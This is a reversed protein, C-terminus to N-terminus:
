AVGSTEQEIWNKISHKVKNTVGFSSQINHNYGLVTVRRDLDVGGINTVEGAYAIGKVDIGSKRPLNWEEYEKASFSFDSCDGFLDVVTRGNLILLEIRSSQILLGLIDSVCSLLGSKESNSLSSWKVSTAYPILDLHCAVFLSSYYSTETGSILQDLKKFWSDYPNRFFYNNCTEVIQEIHTENVNSWSEIGLSDLSHFRRNEGDLENGNADVFERNSPNLGITAVRASDLRGFSPIPSGWAIVQNSELDDFSLRDLLVPLIDKM